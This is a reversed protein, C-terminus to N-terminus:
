INKKARCKRLCEDEVIVISSSTVRRAIVALVFTWLWRRRISMIGVNSRRIPKGSHVYWGFRSRPLPSAFTRLVLNKGWRKSNEKSGRNIRAICRSGCRSTVMKSDGSLIKWTWTVGPWASRCTRAFFPAFQFDRLLLLPSIVPERRKISFHVNGRPYHSTSSVRRPLPRLTVHDNIIGSVIIKRQERVRSHKMRKGLM